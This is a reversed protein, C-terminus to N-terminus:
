VRPRFGGPTQGLRRQKLRSNHLAQQALRRYEHILERQKAEGADSDNLSTLKAAGYGLGGGIAFPAALLGLTALNVAKHGVNEGVRGVVDLAMNYPKTLFSALGGEALKERVQEVRALTQEPDLGEEACRLLFGVKFAEQPTM